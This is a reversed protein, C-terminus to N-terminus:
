LGQEECDLLRQYDQQEQESGFRWLLDHIRGLRVLREIKDLQTLARENELLEEELSWYRDQAEVLTPYDPHAVIFAQAAALDKELFRLFNRTYGNRAEPWRHLLENRLPFRLAQIEEARRGQETQLRTREKQLERRRAQLQRRVDTEAELHEAELLERALVSYDNGADSGDFWLMWRLYWPLWNELYVESTSRPLDSSRGVRLAYLHAEYLSVSGDEDRDPALPLPGGQRNKGALAAFFYTSYDRYDGMEVSASCGEAERDEAEALFGCRHTGRRALRAFAGSYCQTFLFRVLTDSHIPALLGEIEEVSLATSQWLAITNRATNEADHGGHGNFVILVRDDSGLGQFAESLREQLFGAETGGLVGPVQHNRYHEGNAWYSNFVRAFPQLASPAEAPPRWEKVDKAPAEGDNFYVHLQREGPLEALVSRAWIVNQEIQAQSSDLDYGGGILWVHDAAQASLAALILGFISILVGRM